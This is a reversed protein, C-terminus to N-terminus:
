CHDELFDIREPHKEIEEDELREIKGNISSKWYQM